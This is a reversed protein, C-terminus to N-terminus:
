FENVEKIKNVLQSIDGVLMSGLVDIAMFTEDEDMLLFFGEIDDDDELIYIGIDYDKSKVIMLEEFGRDTLDKKLVGLAKSDFNDEEKNIRLVKIKEIDSIMRAFEPDDDINLMNLSSHYFMLVFADPYEDSLNRMVKSQAISLMPMLLLLLITTIRM